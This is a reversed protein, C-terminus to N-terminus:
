KRFCYPPLDRFVWICDPLSNVEAKYSSFQIIVPPFSLSFVVLLKGLCQNETITLGWSNQSCSYHPWCMLRTGCQPPDIGATYNLYKYNCPRPLKAQLNFSLRHWTLPNKEGSLGLIHLNQKKESLFPDKIGPMKLNRARCVLPDVLLSHTPNVKAGNIGLFWVEKSRM